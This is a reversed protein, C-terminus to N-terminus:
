KPQKTLQASDLSTIRYKQKSSKPKDPYLMEVLGNELAPQLYNVRFNERDSLGLKEQMEKRNM